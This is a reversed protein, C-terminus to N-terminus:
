QQRLSLLLKNKLLVEKTDVLHHLTRFIYKDGAYGDYLEKSMLSSVGVM